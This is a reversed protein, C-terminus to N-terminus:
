GGITSSSRLWLGGDVVLTVGTVFRAADSCLFLAADAIEDITALRADIFQSQALLHVTLARYFIREAAILGIAIYGSAM